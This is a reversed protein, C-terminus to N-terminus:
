PVRRPTESHGLLTHYPSTGSSLQPCGLQSGQSWASLHRSFRPTGWNGPSNLLLEWSVEGSHKSPPRAPKRMLEAAGLPPLKEPVGTPAGM